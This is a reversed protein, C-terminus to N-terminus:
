FYSREDRDIFIDNYDNLKKDLAENLDIEVVAYDARDECLRCLIKGKPSVIESKGIFKLEFNDRNEIGIRNATAAFVRNELCRTVMADPCYPLVLNAPHAILQAGKIALTRIAEPFFWDFCIIMGVKGFVTDFVPFGLNGKKFFIKERNFLHVKRYLGTVGDPNVLISSNFFVIGDTEAFGYAVYCQRQRAFAQIITYTPGDIPEALGSLEELSSFNYGTNFLEPLVYFDASVRDMLSIAENVNREVDGFCPNTQIIALRM